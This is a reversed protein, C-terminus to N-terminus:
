DQQAAEAPAVVGSCFSCHMEASGDSACEIQDPCMIEDAELVTKFARCEPNTCIYRVPAEAAGSSTSNLPEEMM